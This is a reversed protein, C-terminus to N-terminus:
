QLAAYRGDLLAAPIPPVTATAHDAADVRQTMLCPWDRDWLRSLTTLWTVDTLVSFVVGLDNRACARGPKALKRYLGCVM